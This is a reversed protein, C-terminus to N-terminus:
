WKFFLNFLGQYLRLDRISLSVRPLMKVARKKNIIAFDRFRICRLRAKCRKYLLHEKYKYVLRDMEYHMLEFNASTNKEHRRYLSVFDNITDLRYGNATLKLWLDWDEVKTEPNYGGVANVESLRLLMGPGPLSAKLLFLDEFSFSRNKPKIYSIITNRDESFVKLGGFVGACLDNKELHKVLRSIKCELMIDDSACGSFYKGRSWALAENMTNSVGKNPRSIFEFRRFRAECKALLPQIKTVSNDTSGDDIIILEINEYDQSLVSEICEQVYSEHNYVPICVSVLPLEKLDNDKM